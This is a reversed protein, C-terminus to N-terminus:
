PTAPGRIGTDYVVAITTLRGDAVTVPQPAATGMLGDVPQPEVVYEGPRLEASFKGDAGTTARVVETGSADRIRLMAGAVPRPACAPDPPSKEVPCAPGATAVGAIGTEPGAAAVPWADDPVAPGAESVVSVMGDPAVAYTFRHEEICGSECDGWGLRVTVVFAGVGSAPEVQYWAAQGIADATHPAIGRLRPEGAIVRSVAQEPQTVPIDPPVSPAVVTPAACAAVALVFAISRALSRTTIM